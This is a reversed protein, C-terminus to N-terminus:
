GPFGYLGAVQRFGCAKKHGGGGFHRAIASVDFDDSDRGRLSWTRTDPGSAFWTASFPSARRSVTRPGLWPELPRVVWPLSM